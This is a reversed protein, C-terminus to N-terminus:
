GEAGELLIKDVRAQAISLYTSSLDFGLSRRGLLAAAVSTTGSGVFPDLVTDREHTSLAICRAPLQIPFQAGHGDQGNSTPFQWIDTLHNPECSPNRGGLNPSLDRYSSKHFTPSRDNSLHLICEMGRTVRSGVTEPLSGTKKWSITSRLFYGLRTSRNAVQGPIGCQEGDTLYSHGASYRRCAHDSWKRGDTGRMALLTESANRRIQTRTNYTDMLNWWVSAHPSLVTKLEFLVEVSHRIFGEPTQESGLSCTEGDAWTRPISDEYVRMGWYPTSTVVCPISSPHLQGLLHLADGQVLRHPQGEHPLSGMREPRLSLRALYDPIRSRPVFTEHFSDQDLLLLVDSPSLDRRHGLVKSVFSPHMGVLASVLSPDFRADSQTIFSRDLSAQPTQPHIDM